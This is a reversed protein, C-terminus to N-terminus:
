LSQNTKPITFIYVYYTGKFKWEKKVNFRSYYNKYEDSYSFNESHFKNYNKTIKNELTKELIKESIIVINNSFNKKAQSIKFKGYPEIVIEDGFSNNSLFPLFHYQIYGDIVPVLTVYRDPPDYLYFINIKDARSNKLEGSVQDLMTHLPQEFSVKVFDNNPYVYFYNFVFIIATLIILIGTIWLFFKKILEKNFKQYLNEIFSFTMIPAWAYFVLHRAAMPNDDAYFFTSIAYAILMSLSFVQLFYYKNVDLEEKKLNEGIIDKEKYKIISFVGYIFYIIAPYLFISWYGLIGIFGLNHRIMTPIPAIYPRIKDTYSSIEAGGTFIFYDPHFYLLVNRFNFAIENKYFQPDDWAVQKPNPDIGTAVSITQFIGPHAMIVVFFYIIIGILITKKPLKVRRAMIISVIFFAFSYFLIRIDYILLSFGLFIYSLFLFNESLRRKEIMKYLLFVAFYFWFTASISINFRSLHILIPTGICIALVTLLRFKKDDITKFTIGILLLMLGSGYIFSPLRTWVYYLETNFINSMLFQKTILLFPSFLFLKIQQLLSYSSWKGVELIWFFEDQYLPPPVRNLEYIRLFIGLSIIIIILIDFYSKDRKFNM